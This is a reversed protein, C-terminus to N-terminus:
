NQDMLDAIFKLNPSDFNSIIIKIIATLPVALFMGVIGWIYGWIFIALLIVIPNLDLRKGVVLPEILHFSFTQIGIVVALVLISFGISEYQVLSMLSPLIVSITSGITPIFNLFFAFSGWIFAFDIGMIWLAVGILIANILNVGIKAIIYKQIQETITKFTNELKIEVEHKEVEIKEEIIQNNPNETYTLENYNQIEPENSNIVSSKQLHYQKEIKKFDNQKKESIFRKKMADIIAQHGDVIFIFFFILILIGGFIDIAPSFFGGALQSYDLKGILEQISFNLISPDSLKLNVAFDRVITNIKNAYLELNNQFQALSDIFFKIIGTFILILIIFDIVIVFVIHFKKKQLFENLPLFAFNLIYAITFPIFVFYLEKLAFVILIIGIISIFFKTTSDLTIKKM